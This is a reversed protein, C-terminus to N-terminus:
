ATPIWEVRNGHARLLLVTNDWAEPWAPDLPDGHVRVWRKRLAILAPMETAAVPAVNGYGVAAEYATRDDWAAKASRGVDPGVSVIGTCHEAPRDCTVRREDKSPSPCRCQAHTQDFECTERFHTM